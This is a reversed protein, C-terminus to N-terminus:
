NLNTEKIDSCVKNLVINKKFIEQGKAAHLWTGCSKVGYGSLCITERVVHLNLFARAKTFFKM